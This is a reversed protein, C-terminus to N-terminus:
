GGVAARFRVNGSKAHPGVVPSMRHLLDLCVEIVRRRAVARLQAGRRRAGQGNAVFDFKTAQEVPLDAARAGHACIEARLRRSRELGSLRQYRTRPASRSTTHGTGSARAAADM